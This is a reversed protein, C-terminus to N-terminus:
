EKMHIKRDEYQDIKQKVEQWCVPIWNDVEWGRYAKIVEQDKHMAVLGAGVEACSWGKYSGVGKYVLDVEEQTMGQTMESISYNAM